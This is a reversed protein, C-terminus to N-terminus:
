HRGAHNTEGTVEFWSVCPTNGFAVRYNDLGGSGGCNETFYFTKRGALEFNLLNHYDQNLGHLLLQADPTQRFHEMVAAVPMGISAAADQVFKEFLFTICPTFERSDFDDVSAVSGQWGMQRLRSIDRDLYDWLEPRLKRIRDFHTLPLKRPSTQM